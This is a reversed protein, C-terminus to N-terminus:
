VSRQCILNRTILDCPIDNWGAARVEACDENYYNDPQNYEWRKDQVDITGGDLCVWTGETQIDNCGILFWQGSSMTDLHQMEGEFRPVVMVGGWAVCIQKGEEWTVDADHM